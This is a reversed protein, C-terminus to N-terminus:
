ARGESGLLRPIVTLPCDDDHPHDSAGMYSAGCWRCQYAGDQFRGDEDAVVRGIARWAKVEDWLARVDLKAHNADPLLDHSIPSWRERIAALEGDTM